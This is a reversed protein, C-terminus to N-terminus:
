GENQSSLYEWREYKELIQIDLEDIIKQLQALKSYDGNGSHLEKEAETRHNELKEIDEEITEFEKKEAYSLKKVPKQKQSEEAQKKPEKEQKEQTKAEMFETFSGYFMDISGKGDFVMLRDTVRDMFCRDHSVVAICGDFDALFDELVSLTKIDLDNTPEDLILFNPNQMLIIVLHLRRKEGGSLKKVPTSHMQSPFLFKELMQGASISKGNPLLINEKVDRVIDIIRKEPDLERSHQDFVAFCTNVGVTIEGSDPQEQGTIIRLFTSKGAGNPGVIGLKEKHGFVYSVPNIIRRDGYSKEIDKIELIVGGLRRGTIELELNEPRKVVDRNQMDTIRDIRAKQKTSRAKAGRRLWKLENRLINQIRDEERAASHEMETKKELYYSYNGSFTCITGRDIEIINNCIEDLFYRDHTVMLISKTTRKLYTQLWQVTEIDLHNTPEDLVLLNGEDILAQALAVKKLMGGSLKEMQMSLDNIGLEGLISKIESEHAWANLRNLEGIASDLRTRYEDTDQPHTCLSEYEKMLSVLTSDSRFIHDLITDGPEFQPLQPLYNIRCQRNWSITGSDPQEDKAMMKLLTSKGCGNVGILATKQGEEIGFSINTFLTKDGMTKSVSDVSVLNM